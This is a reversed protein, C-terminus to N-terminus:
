RRPKQSLFAAIEAESPRGSTCFIADYLFVVPAAALEPFSQKIAASLRPRLKGVLARFSIQPPIRTVNLLAYDGGFECAGLSMDMSLLVEEATRYFLEKAGDLVFIKRRRHTIMVIWCSMDAITKGNEFVQFHHM